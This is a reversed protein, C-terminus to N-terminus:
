RPWEGYLLPQHYPKPLRDTQDMMILAFVAYNIIDEYHDRDPVEGVVNTQIYAREAKAFIEHGMGRLGSRRWVGHRERNREVFKDFCRQLVLFFAAEDETMNGDTTNLLAITPRDRDSGKYMENSM